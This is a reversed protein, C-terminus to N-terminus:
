VRGDMGDLFSGWFSDDPPLQAAFKAWPPCGLGSARVRGDKRLGVYLGTTTGKSAAAAQEDFWTKWEGMRIASARWRLDDASLPPLAAAPEEQQGSAAGDSYMPVPVVLVGRDALEQKFPEAAALAASVQELTGAVIVPRAAGRLQALRLVRKNALELQCAGLQDERMLRAMQKDRAEIDRKLFFGCTALAGVNIALDQLAETISKANPAGAVAGVISPLSFLTALVASITGFGFLVLRVSRFPAEAEARLAAEEKSPPRYRNLPDSSSKGKKTTKTSESRVILRSIRRYTNLGPRFAGVHGQQLSRRLLLAQAPSHAAGVAGTREM